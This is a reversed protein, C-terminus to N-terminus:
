FFLAIRFMSKSAKPLKRSWLTACSLSRMAFWDDLQKRWFRFWSRVWQCCWVQYCGTWVCSESTHHIWIKVGPSGLPRHPAICEMPVSSYRSYVSAFKRFLMGDKVFHFTVATINKEELHDNYPIEMMTHSDRTSRRSPGPLPRRHRHFPHFEWM